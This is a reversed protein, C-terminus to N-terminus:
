PEEGAVVGVCEYVNSLCQWEFTCTVCTTMPAHCTDDRVVAGAAFDLRVLTDRSLVLKKVIRKKM